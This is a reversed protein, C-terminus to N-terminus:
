SAIEALDTVNQASEGANVEYLYSEYSLYRQFHDQSLLEAAREIYKNGLLDANLLGLFASVKILVWVQYSDFPYNNRYDGDIQPIRDRFDAIVRLINQEWTKITRVDAGHYGKEKFHRAIARRNWFNKKGLDPIDVVRALVREGPILTSTQVQQNPISTAVQEDRVLSITKMEGQIIM